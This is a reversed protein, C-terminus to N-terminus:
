FKSTVSHKGEVFFINIFINTIEFAHFASLLSDLRILFTWSLTTCMNADTKM